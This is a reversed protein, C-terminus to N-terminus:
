RNINAVFVPNGAASGTSKVRGCQTLEKLLCSEFSWVFWYKDNVVLLQDFCISLKIIIYTPGM